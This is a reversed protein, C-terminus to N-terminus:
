TNICMHVDHEQNETNGDPIITVEYYLNVNDKPAESITPLMHGGPRGAATGLVSCTFMRCGKSRRETMM